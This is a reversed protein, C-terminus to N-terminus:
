NRIFLHNSLTVGAARHGAAGVLLV